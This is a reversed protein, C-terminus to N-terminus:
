SDSKLTRRLKNLKHKLSNDIMNDGVKLVYGGILSDDIRTNLEVQKGTSKTILDIFDKELSKSLKTATSVNARVMGQQEHYLSIYIKAVDPLIDTRNKRAILGFFKVTLENCHKEFVESLVRLKYDYRVIPNKLLILLKRNQKVVEEVLNMDQYINKERKLEVALDFLSKAYRSAARYDSM